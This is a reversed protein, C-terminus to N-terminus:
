LANRAHSFVQLEEHNKKYKDKLKDTDAAHWRKLKNDFISSDGGTMIGSKNILSGDKSVVQRWTM